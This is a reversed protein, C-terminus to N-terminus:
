GGRSLRVLNYLAPFLVPKRDKTGQVKAEVTVRRTTITIHLSYYPFLAGGM